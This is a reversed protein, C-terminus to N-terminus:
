YEQSSRIISHIESYSGIYIETKSGEESKKADEMYSIKKWNDDKIIQAARLSNFIFSHFRNDYDTIVENKFNQLILIFVKDTYSINHVNNKFQILEKTLENKYIQELSHYYKSKISKTKQYMPLTYNLEIKLIGSSVSVNVKHANNHNEPSISSHDRLTQELTLLRKYLHSRVIEIDQMQSVTEDIEAILEQESTVRVIQDKNIADVEVEANENGWIFESM